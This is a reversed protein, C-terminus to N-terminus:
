EWESSISRTAGCTKCCQATKTESAFSTSGGPRQKSCMGSSHSCSSFLEVFTALKKGHYEVFHKCLAREFLLKSFNADFGLLDGCEPDICRANKLCAVNAVRPFTGGFETLLTFAEPLLNGFQAQWLYTKVVRKKEREFGQRIGCVSAKTFRQVDETGVHVLRASDVLWEGEVAAPQTQIDQDAEALGARREAEFAERSFSEM